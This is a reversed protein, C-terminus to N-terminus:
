LKPKLSEEVDKVGTQYPPVRLEVWLVDVFSLPYEGSSWYVLQMRATLRKEFRCMKKKIKKVPHILFPACVVDFTTIRDPRQCLFFHKLFVM